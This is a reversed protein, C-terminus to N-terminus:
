DRAVKDAHERAADIDVLETGDEDPIEDNDRLNFYYMPMPIEGEWGTSILAVAEDASQPM